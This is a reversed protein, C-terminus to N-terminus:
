QQTVRHRTPTTGASAAKFTAVVIGWSAGGTWSGQSTEGTQTTSYIKHMLESLNLPDQGDSIFSNGPTITKIANLRLCAVAIEAAQATNYTGSTASTVSAGDGTNVGGSGDVDLPSSTDAGAIEMVYFGVQNASTLTVTLAGGTINKAYWLKALNDNSPAPIDQVALPTYTNVTDSVSMTTNSSNVVACAALLNGTTATISVAGSTGVVVTQVVSLAGFSPLVCVLFLALIKKM